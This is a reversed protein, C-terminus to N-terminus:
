HYTTTRGLNEVGHHQYLSGGCEYRHLAVKMDRSKSVMVTVSADKKGGPVRLLLRLPYKTFYPSSIPALPLPQPLAIPVLESLQIQKM